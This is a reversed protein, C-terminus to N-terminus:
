ECVLWIGQTFNRVFAFFLVIIKTPWPFGKGNIVKRRELGLFAM